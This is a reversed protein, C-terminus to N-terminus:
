KWPGEQTVNVFRKGDLRYLGLWGGCWIRGKKDQYICQIAESALGDKRGYNKFIHGDYRYVGYGEVPFWINGSSDKFLSWVESGKVGDKETFHTFTKGDWRCVGKFHTAFWFEGKRGEVMCNVSNDCLGDKESLNVLTKGDYIYAGGDTGLWMRGQSDEMVFHVARPGTMGRRPDPIAEPIAFEIFSEGDFLSMGQLTGIWITGNRDIALSWIDSSVLGDKETYHKISKGDYKSLGTSTGIWLSGNKDEVIGRVAVGGAVDNLAMHDLSKGNFRIVGDGNTGFWFNGSKDQFVRRIFESLQVGMSFSFDVPNAKNGSEMKEDLKLKLGILHDLRAKGHAKAAPRAEELARNLADEAAVLVDPKVGVGEWNTGTVPNIARGTPVFMGFRGVINMYRGPNAGGRTTEGIITARKRTQLNYAFEEAASFTMDSTLVYVPVDPMFDGPVGDLTWFEQTRNGERFYLSNLHTPKDFLYSSVFQVMGPSGGGNNRMDFILADCNAVLAMAAVATKQGLDPSSFFRLDLYGVNGDLREVREFGYNSRRQDDQQRLQAIEPDKPKSGRLSPTQFHVVMHKDKSIAQLAKTLSDAFAKQDTQGDFAGDALQARLQSSCEDAVDAFVYNLKLLTAIRNVVDSRAEANLPKTQAMSFSSLVFLFAGLFRSVLFTRPSKM